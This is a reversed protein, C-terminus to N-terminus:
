FPMNLFYYWIGNYRDEKFLHFSHFLLATDNKTTSWITKLQPYRSIKEDKTILPMGLILATAM